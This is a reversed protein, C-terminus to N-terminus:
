VSGSHTLRPSLCSCTKAECKPHPFKLCSNIGYPILLWILPCPLQNWEWKESNEGDEESKQAGKASPSILGDNKNLQKEIVQIPQACTKWSSRCKASMIEHIGNIGRTSSDHILKQVSWIDRSMGCGRLSRISLLNTWSWIALFTNRSKSSELARTVYLELMLQIKSAFPFLQSPSCTSAKYTTYRQKLSYNDDDPPDRM